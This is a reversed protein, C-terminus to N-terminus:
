NVNEFRDDGMLFDIEEFELIRVGRNDFNKVVFKKSLDMKQYYLFENKLRPFEFAVPIYKSHTSVGMFKKNTLFTM